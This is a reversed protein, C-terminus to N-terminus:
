LNALLNDCRLLTLVGLVLQERLCNGDDAKCRQFLNPGVVQGWGLVFEDDFDVSVIVISKGFFIHVEVRGFNFVESTFNQLEVTIHSVLLLHRPDKNFDLIFEVLYVLSLRKLAKWDSPQVALGCYCVLEKVQHRTLVELIAAKFLYDNIVHFLLAEREFIVHYRPQCLAAGAKLM